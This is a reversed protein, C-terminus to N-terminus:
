FARGCESCRKIQVSAIPAENDELFVELLGSSSLFARLNEQDILAADGRCLDCGVEIMKFVTAEADMPGDVYFDVRGDKPYADTEFWTLGPQGEADRWDHKAVAKNHTEFASLDFWVHLEPPYGPENDESDEIALLQARMQNDPKEDLGVSSMDVFEVYVAQETLLHRLNLYTM